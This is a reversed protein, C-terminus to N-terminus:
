PTNQTAQPHVCGPRQVGQHAGNHNCVAYVEKVTKLKFILRNDLIGTWATFAGSDEGEQLAFDLYVKFYPAM